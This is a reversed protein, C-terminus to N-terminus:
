SRARKAGEALTRVLSHVAEPTGPQAKGDVLSAGIASVLASGVVVGDADKGILQADEATKIGFGVAVPLGTHSKIRTVAAGVAARNKIEAGTIGTMSVYYVFGSTNKLITGLRHNDTTPTALRIFNLGAKLAPLCLEDDEEAPLDVQSDFASQMDGKERFYDRRPPDILLPEGTEENDERARELAWQIKSDNSAKDPRGALLGAYARSQTLKDLIIERGTQLLLTCHCNYAVDFEV